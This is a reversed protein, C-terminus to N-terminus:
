EQKIVVHSFDAVGTSCGILIDKYDILPIKGVVTKGDYMVRAEGSKKVEFLFQAPGADVERDAITTEQFEINNAFVGLLRPPIRGSPNKHFSVKIGVSKEHQDGILFVGAMPGWQENVKFNHLDVLGSISITKGKIPYTEGHFM